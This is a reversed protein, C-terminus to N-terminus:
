RSDEFLTLTCFYQSTPKRAQFTYSANHRSQSVNNIFEIGDWIIIARKLRERNKRLRAGITYRNACQVKSGASKPEFGFLLQRQERRPKPTGHRRLLKPWTLRDLRMSPPRTSGGPFRTMQCKSERGVGWSHLRSTALSKASAAQPSRIDKRQM